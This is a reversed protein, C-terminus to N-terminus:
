RCACTNNTIDGDTISFSSGTSLIKISAIAAHTCRNLQVLVSRDPRKPIPGADQLTVKCGNPDNTIKGTGSVKTGKRCETFQYDGNASNFQLLNGSSDDQLCFDFGWGEYRALAFRSGTIDGSYGLAVIKGDSQLALDFAFAFPGISTIVAGDSGFSTDLSADSNLRLLTFSSQAFGASVIKGTPQIIVAYNTSGSGFITSAVKGGPGFATDLTGNPNYRAIGFLFDDENPSVTGAMVLKGDPQLALARGIDYFGFFDTSVRGGSGFTADLGGDPDYRVLAYNPGTSDNGEFGGAVLKGDPQLILSTAESAFSDTVFGGAAFSSDPTGDQNYRWLALHVKSGSDSRGAVVIRGDPQIVVANGFGFGGPPLTLVTGGFGFSQDLSGDPNYRVIAVYCLPVVSTRAFGVAVIKGDPQIAVDHIQDQYAFFDTIVKGGSGFTSDLSGDPNFRAIIFDEGFFIDIASSSGVSIIKGDAQIALANGISSHRGFDATVKGGVGFSPDLEGAALAELGVASAKQASWTSSSLLMAVVGVVVSVRAKQTNPRALCISRSPSRKM